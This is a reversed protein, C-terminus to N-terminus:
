LRTWNGDYAGYRGTAVMRYVEDKGKNWTDICGKFRSMPTLSEKYNEGAYIWDYFWIDHLSDAKYVMAPEIALTIKQGLIDITRSLACFKMVFKANGVDMDDCVYDNYEAEGNITYVIEEALYRMTKESNCIIITNMTLPSLINSCDKTGFHSSNFGIYSVM